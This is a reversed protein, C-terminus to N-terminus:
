RDVGPRGSAPPATLFCDATVLRSLFSLMRPRIADAPSGNLTARRCTSAAAAPCREFNSNKMSDRRVPRQSRDLRSRVASGGSIAWSVLRRSSLSSRCGARGRQRRLDGLEGVELAQPEPAVPEGRQRRLDALEGAELCQPEAAVLQGRQRRLDALEGAELVSHSSAVRSVASGGSIPWSVLRWVQLEVAVPQGRQRRLDGLEGAELVQPEAAVPQGRQRRLDALEGAELCQLEAAVSSVTSGGSIAWSVLRCSM